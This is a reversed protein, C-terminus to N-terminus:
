GVFDCSVGRCVSCAIARSDWEVQTHIAVGLFAIVNNSPLYAYTQECVANFYPAHYSAWWVRGNAPCAGVTPNCKYNRPSLATGVGTTGDSLVSAYAVGVNVNM